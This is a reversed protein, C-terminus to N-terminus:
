EQAARGLISIDASPDVDLLAHAATAMPLPDRAAALALGLDKRLAGVTFDAAAYNGSELRERKGTVLKAFAGGSLVDLVLARDLGLSEGLRVADHLGAAVVGLGLNAVLKAATATGIPGTHQVDGNSTWCRLLARAAAVDETSGGALVRLSSSRVAPVSGLVPAEVYRLGAEIARGALDLSETPAITSTNIVLTGPEVYQVLGALVDASAKGDLVMVVIVEATALVDLGTPEYGSRPSRNWRIVEHGHQELTTAFAQGMRGLGCVGVRM